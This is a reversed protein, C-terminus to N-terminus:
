LSKLLCSLELLVVALLTTKLMKKPESGARRLNVFSKVVVVPAQETKNDHPSNLINHNLDPSFEDSDNNYLSQKPQNELIELKQNFNNIQATTELYRSEIVSELRDKLTKVENLIEDTWKARLDVAQEVGSLSEISERNETFAISDEMKGSESLFYSVLMITISIFILAIVQKLRIISALESLKSNSWRVTSETKPKDNLELDEEKTNDNDSNDQQM